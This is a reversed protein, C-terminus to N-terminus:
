RGHIYGHLNMAPAHMSTQLLRGDVDQHLESANSLLVGTARSGLSDRRSAGASDDCGDVDLQM